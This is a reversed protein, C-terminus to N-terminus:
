ELQELINKKREDFSITKKKKSNNTGPKNINQNIITQTENTIMNSSFENKNKNEMEIIKDTPPILLKISDQLQDSDDVSSSNSYEYQIFLFEHDKSIFFTSKNKIPQDNNFPIFYTGREQNIKGLVHM